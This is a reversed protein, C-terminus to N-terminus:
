LGSLDAKLKFFTLSGSHLRAAIEVRDASAHNVLIEVEVNQHERPDIVALFKVSDANRIMLHRNTHKETIERAIQMMCIGPVIPLNPFHGGFISHDRDLEIIGRISLSDNAEPVVTITQIKYFSDLLM